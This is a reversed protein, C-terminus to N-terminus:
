VRQDDVYCLMVYENLLSIVLRM